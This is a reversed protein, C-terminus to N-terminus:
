LVNLMTSTDDLRSQFTVGDVTVTIVIPVDGARLLQSPLDFDLTYVGPEIIFASARINSGVVAADRLRITAVSNNLGEVGTLYLRVVTPTLIDGRRKLTKIPFPEVTQITNTVNFAKTRGTPGVVGDM